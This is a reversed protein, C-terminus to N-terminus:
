LLVVLALLPLGLEELVLVSVDVRGGEGTYVGLEVTVAEVPEHAM